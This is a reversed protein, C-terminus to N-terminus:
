IPSPFQDRIRTNVIGSHRKVYHQTAELRTHRLQDMLERMSVHGSLHLNSAGTHKMSYLKYGKPLGLRDRIKNFRYSMVNESLVRSGFTKRRSFVYLGKDAKDLGNEICLEILQIPMTVVDTRGSKAINLPIRITGSELDIDSVKMHRMENGPRIFCYYMMMCALYLQKDKRQIEPLLIKLHEPAIVEASCDRKKTPMVVLDFPEKEAEGRKAAFRWLLRLELFHKECTAKDLDKGTALHVFYSAVQENTIKILPVEALGNEELWRGFLSCKSVDNSYTGIRMEIKRTELYLPMIEAYTKHRKFINM